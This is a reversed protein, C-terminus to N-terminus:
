VFVMKKMFYLTEVSYLLKHASGINCLWTVANLGLGVGRNNVRTTWDTVSGHSQSRRTEDRQVSGVEYNKTRLHETEMLVEDEDYWGLRPPARRGAQLEGVRSVTIAGYWGVNLKNRVSLRLNNGGEGPAEWVVVM